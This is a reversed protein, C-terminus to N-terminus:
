GIKLCLYVNIYEMSVFLLLFLDRILCQKFIGTELGAIKRRMCNLMADACLAYLDAGTLNKPCKEAVNMLDLDKALKFRHSTSLNSILALNVCKLVLPHNHCACFIINM